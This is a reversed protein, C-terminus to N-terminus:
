MLSESPCRWERNKAKPKRPRPKIEFTVNSTLTFSDGTHDLAFDQDHNSEQVPNLSFAVPNCRQHTLSDRSKCSQCEAYCSLRLATMLWYEILAPGSVGTDFLLPANGSLSVRAKVKDRYPFKGNKIGPTLIIVDLAFSLPTEPRPSRPLSPFLVSPHIPLTAIFM